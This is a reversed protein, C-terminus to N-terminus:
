GGQKEEVISILKKTRMRLARYDFRCKIITQIEFLDQDSAFMIFAQRPNVYEILEDFEVDSDSDSSDGSIVQKEDILM